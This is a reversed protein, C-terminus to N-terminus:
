TSSRRTGLLQHKPCRVPETVRRPAGSAGGVSHVGSPQVGAAGGYELEGGTRQPPLWADCSSCRVDATTTLGGCKWCPDRDAQVQQAFRQEEAGPTEIAGGTSSGPRAQTDWVIYIKAEAAFTKVLTWGKEEGENLRKGVANGANDLLQGLGTVFEVKYRKQPNM